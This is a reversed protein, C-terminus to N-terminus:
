WDGAYPDSEPWGWWVALCGLALAFALRGTPAKVGGSVPLTLVGVAGTLLFASGVPTAAFLVGNLLLGGGGLALPFALAGLADRDRRVWCLVASASVAIAVSLLLLATAGSSQGVLLATLGLLPILGVPLWAHEDVKSFRRQLAWGLGGQLVGIGLLRMVAWSEHWHHTRYPELGYVLWFGLGLTALGWGIRKRSFLEPCACLPLCLVLIATADRPPWPPLQGHLAWYASLTAMPLCLGVALGRPFLGRKFKPLPIEGLALCTCAGLLAFLLTDIEM